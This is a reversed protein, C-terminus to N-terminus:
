DQMSESLGTREATDGQLAHLAENFDPMDDARQNKRSWRVIHQGDVAFSGATQWRSGSETPRVNIGTEKSLKSVGPICGLVHWLSSTGLGWAAYAQREADIIIQLNPQTNKSPDPLSALWRDTSEQDSHSVAVFYIDPHAPALARSDLFTKEAVAAVNTLNYQWTPPGQAPHSLSVPVAVTDFSLSSQLSAARLLVM